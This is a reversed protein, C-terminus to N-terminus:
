PFLFGAVVRRGEGALVNFTRAAAANGMVEIGVGRVLCEALVAAAPFVQVAGTGLVVVEPTLELLPQLDQPTLPVGARAPWNEILADPAVIFSRQLQLENVLAMAGNAGRLLYRYEPRELNLQM